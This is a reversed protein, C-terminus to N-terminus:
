AFVQPTDSGTLQRYMTVPMLTFIVSGAASIIGSIVALLATGTGGVGMDLGFLLFVTGFVLSSVFSILLFVIGIIFLFAFIPLANGRTIEFSRKVATVPNRIGEGIAIVGIPAFRCALYLGPLIFLFLGLGVIINAFLNIIFYFPLFLLAAKIAESVTPREPAMVLAWIALQGVMQVLSVLLILPFYPRLVAIIAALSSVDEVAPLTLSLLLGPLLFFVGALAVLLQMESNLLHRVEDWGASPSFRHTDAM